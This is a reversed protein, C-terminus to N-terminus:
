RPRCREFAHSGGDTALTDIVRRDGEPCDGTETSARVCRELGALEHPEIELRAIQELWYARWSSCASPGDFRPSILGREGYDVALARVRIEAPSISISALCNPNQAQSPSRVESSSPSYGRGVSFRIRSCHKHRRRVVHDANVHFCEFRCWSYQESNPSCGRALSGATVVPSRLPTHQQETLLARTAHPLPRLPCSRCPRPM